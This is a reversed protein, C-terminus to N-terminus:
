PGPLSRPTSTSMPEKESVMIVSAAIAGNAEDGVVMVLTPWVRWWSVSRM